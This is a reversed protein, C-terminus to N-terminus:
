VTCLVVTCKLFKHSLTKNGLGTTQYNPWTSHSGDTRPQCRKGGVKFTKFVNKSHYKWMKRAVQRRKLTGNEEEFIENEGLSGM